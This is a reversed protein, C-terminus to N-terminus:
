RGLCLESERCANSQRLSDLSPDCESGKIAAVCENLERQDIGGSCANLNIEDNEVARVAMLCDSRTDYRHNPGVQLCREARDCRAAAVSLLARHAERPPITGLAENDRGCASVVFGAGLAFLLLVRAHATRSPEKM